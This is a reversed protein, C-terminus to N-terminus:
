KTKLKKSAEAYSQATEALDQDSHAISLFCTEFQSPPIFIGLKLLEKHFINFVRKDCNKTSAYDYVSSNSFFVQFMSAIENIQFSQGCDKMLDRIANCLKKRKAELGTYFSVGSKKIYKLTTLGATVSIPNGSFTGAQYVRGLPAIMEMIDRRGGYAGIPFGGGLIKGLTTMDPVVDYFEQAGGLALRFGTIVEDFILLVGYNRTL